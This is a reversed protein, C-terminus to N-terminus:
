VPYGKDDPTCINFVQPFAQLPPTLGAKQIQQMKVDLYARQIVNAQAEIGMVKWCPMDPSYAGAKEMLYMALVHVIQGQANIDHEIDIDTNILIRDTKPPHVSVLTPCRDINVCMDFKIQDTTMEEFNPAGQLETLQIAISLLTALISSM